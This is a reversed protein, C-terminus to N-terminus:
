SSIAVVVLATVVLVAVISRTLNTIFSAYTKQAAEMNNVSM